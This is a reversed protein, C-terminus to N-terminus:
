EHVMGFIRDENVRRGDVTVPLRQLTALDYLGVAVRYAGSALGSTDLTHTDAVIESQDWASTPYRGEVPWGDHQGVIQGAPDLVHVFVTYDTDPESTARWYLTVTLARVESPWSADYGLLTIREGLDANVRREAPLASVDPQQSPKVALRGLKLQFDNLSQQGVQVAQSHMDWFSLIGVELQYLGPALGETRLGRVDEIIEDREWASTAYTSNLPEGKQDVVVRGATDRLHVFGVYDHQPQLQAHWYLTLTLPQGAQISAPAKHRMSTFTVRFHFDAIM